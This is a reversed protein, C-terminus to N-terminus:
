FHLLLATPPVHPFNNTDLDTHSDGLIGLVSGLHNQWAALNPVIPLSNSIYAFLSSKKKQLIM